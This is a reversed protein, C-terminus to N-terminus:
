RTRWEKGCVRARSCVAARRRRRRRAAATGPRPAPPRSPAAFARARPTWGRRFRRAAQRGPWPPCAGAGVWACTHKVAGQDLSGVRRSHRLVCCGVHPVRRTLASRAAHPSCVSARVNRGADLKAAQDRFLLAQLLQLQVWQTRRRPHDCWRNSTGAVVARLPRSHQALFDRGRNFPFAAKLRIRARRPVTGEPHPAPYAYTCFLEINRIILRPRLTYAPRGPAAGSTTLCATSKPTWPTSTCGYSANAAGCRPAIRGPRSVRSLQSLM